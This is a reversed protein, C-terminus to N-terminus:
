GVGLFYQVLTGLIQFSVLGIHLGRHTSVLGLVWVALALGGLLHFGTFTGWPIQGGVWPSFFLFAMSVLGVAFFPVRVNWFHAEYDTIERSARGCLLEVRVIVFAPPGLAGLFTAPNYTFDRWEWFGYWTSLCFLLLYIAWGLSIWSRREPDFLDPLSSLLRGVGIAYLLAVAVSVFEFQSM